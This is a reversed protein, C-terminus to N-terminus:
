EQVQKLAAPTMHVVLCTKEEEHLITVFDVYSSALKLEEEKKPVSDTPGCALIPVKVNLDLSNEHKKILEYVGRENGNLERELKREDRQIETIRENFDERERELTIEHSLFLNKELIKELLTLSSTTGLLSAFLSLRRSMKLLLSFPSPLWAAPPFNPGCLEQGM